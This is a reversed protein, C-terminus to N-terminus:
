FILSRTSMLQTCRERVIARSREIRRMSRM